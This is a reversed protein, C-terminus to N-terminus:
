QYVKEAQEMSISFARDSIRQSPSWMLLGKEKDYNRSVAFCRGNKRYYMTYGKGDAHNLYFTCNAKM